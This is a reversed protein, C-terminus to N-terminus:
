YRSQPKFDIGLVQKPSVPPMTNQYGLVLVM